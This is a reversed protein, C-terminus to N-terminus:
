EKSLTLPPDWRSGPARKDSEATQCILSPELRGHGAATVPFRLLSRWSDAKVLRSARSGDTRAPTLPNPLVRDAAANSAIPLEDETETDFLGITNAIEVSITPRLTVDDGPMGGRQKSRSPAHFGIV